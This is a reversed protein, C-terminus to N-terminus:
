PYTNESTMFSRLTKMNVPDLLGSCHAIQSKFIFVNHDKPVGVAVCQHCLVVDWFVQIRIYQYFLSFNKDANTVVKLSHQLQTAHMFIMKSHHANQKLLPLKTCPVM